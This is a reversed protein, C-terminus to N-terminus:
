WIIYRKAIDVCLHVCMCICEAAKENGLPWIEKSQKVCYSEAIDIDSKKLVEDFSNKEFRSFKLLSIVAGHVM